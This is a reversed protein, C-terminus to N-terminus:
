QDTMLPRHGLGNAESRACAVDQVFMMVLCRATVIYCYGTCVSRCASGFASGWSDADMLFPWKPEAVKGLEGSSWRRAGAVQADHTGGALSVSYRDMDDVTCM